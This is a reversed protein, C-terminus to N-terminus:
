TRGGEIWKEILDVALLYHAPWTAPKGNLTGPRETRVRRVFDDVNGPSVYAGGEEGYRLCAHMDPEEALANDQYVYVDYLDAGGPAEDNRVRITGLFRDRPRVHDCCDHWHPASV